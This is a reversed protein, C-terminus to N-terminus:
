LQLSAAELRQVYNALVERCPAQPHAPVLSLYLLAMVGSGCVQYDVDTDEPDCELLSILGEKVVWGGFVLNM